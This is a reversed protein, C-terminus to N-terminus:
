ENRLAQVPNLRCARQAPLYSALLAVGGFLVAVAALTTPDTGSVGFLLGTMVRGLAVAGMLGLVAGIAVPVMAQRVMLSRVQGGEAGLAVRLGIERTREGVAFSVVGFIGVAALTLAFAAFVSLIRAAIRRPATSLVLVDSVTRVRYIPQDADLARVVDRVAPIVGLPEVGTRVLLFM